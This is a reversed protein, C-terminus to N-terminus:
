TKLPTNGIDDMNKRFQLPSVGFQQKFAKSFHSLNQFGCKGAITTLSEDENAIMHRAQNLRVQLVYAVPTLGTIAMVRTRLQKRSLSLAAAIHEMDIDEQAMHAHIVDILRNIFEKDEKSMQVSSSENNINSNTKALRDRMVSRQNILHNAIILLESSMFPKVLVYDAGAEICAMRELESSDSTMAIIPIHCLSENDRVQRMLQKGDMVPMTIDTIILSPVLSQANKLAERGDRAFRLEYEKSLRSAIFFAVDETNEVIFVLPKGNSDGTQRILEETLQHSSEETLSDDGPVHKYPLTITFTTGKGPQSDVTITGNMAQVLQNVLSLTIATDVADDGNLSQYFPEYIRGLEEVPIGKGTDKVILSIKDDMPATVGVTIRGNRPTFKIASSILSHIITRIHHTSFDMIVTNVPSSFELTVLHQNAENTFNEVLMRVFMVINGRRLDPEDIDAKSKEINLIQNVLGLMSKGHRMIVEGIHKSEDASTKGGELLQQGASMVITLPTQLENTINALFHSRIEETQRQIKLAKKNKRWTLFLGALTATLLIVLSFGGWKVLNGMYENKKDLETEELFENTTEMVNLQAAISSSTLSDNLSTYRELHLMAVNPNTDRMTEWLGHEAKREAVPSGCKISQELANKYYNIAEDRNGLKMEIKGLQNYAIALSYANNAKGLAPLAQLITARAENLNSMKELIAGKQVLRIAVKEPKGSMKDINYAEEIAAMAKNMDGLLLYLESAIGLRVALKEPRNLKRELEISKEIYKIGLEPQQVSLYISAFSSLDNSILKDDKLKKDLKYAMLATKLADDYNGLKIQANGISTLIDSKFRDDNITEIIAQSRNGADLSEGYQGHSYYYESMWYHVYPDIAAPKDKASFQLVTDCIQSSHLQGLIKNATESKLQPTTNMYMIYLSDVNEAEGPLQSGMLGILVLVSRLLYRKLRLSTSFLLKTPIRVSERASGSKVELSCLWSHGLFNLCFIGLLPLIYGVSNNLM